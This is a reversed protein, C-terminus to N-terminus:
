KGTRGKKQPPVPYGHQRRFERYDAYVRLEQQEIGELLADPPQARQEMEEHIVALLRRRSQVERQFDRRSQEILRVVSPTPHGRIELHNRAM